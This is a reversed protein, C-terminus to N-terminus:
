ETLDLLHHWDLAEVTPHLIHDDDVINYRLNSFLRKARKKTPKISIVQDNRGHYVIVPLNVSNYKSPNLEPTALLPALLILKKVNNPNKLTFLAAMLGGFSSGIIKWSERKVLIRNLQQMRDILLKQYPINPDYPKLDPTLCGPIKKRFLNGKFGHGSSELGHIFIINNLNIRKM